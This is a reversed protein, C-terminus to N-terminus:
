ADEVPKIRAVSTAVGIGQVWEDSGTLLPEAARMTVPALVAWFSAPLSVNPPTDRFMPAVQTTDYGALGCGIATVLFHLHPHAHAFDLFDRVHAAIATLPLTNLRADKTPIAYCRGSIGSGQGVVAGFMERATKAAGAGHLGRENSGFTFIQNPELHTINEPTIRNKMKSQPGIVRAIGDGATIRVCM